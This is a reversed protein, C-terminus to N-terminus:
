LTKGGCAKRLRNMFAAGIGETTISETFLIECQEEDFRRLADFLHAAMEDPSKRSGIAIVVEAEYEKQHEDM